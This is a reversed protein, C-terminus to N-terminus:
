SPRHGGILVLVFLLVDWGPQLLRDSADDRLFSGPAGPGDQLLVQSVGDFLLINGAGIALDPNGDM